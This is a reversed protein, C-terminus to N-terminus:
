QRASRAFVNLGSRSAAARSGTAAGRPTTTQASVSAVSIGQCALAALHPLALAAQMLMWRGGAGPDTGLRWGVAAICVFLGPALAAEERV